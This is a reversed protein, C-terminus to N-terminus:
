PGLLRAIPPRMSNLDLSAARRQAEAEVERLVVAAQDGRALLSLRLADRLVEGADPLDPAGALAHVLQALQHSSGQAAYHAAARECIAEPSAGRPGLGAQGIAAVLRLNARRTNGGDLFYAQFLGDVGLDLEHQLWLASKTARRTAAQNGSEAVHRIKHWVRRALGPGPSRLVRFRPTRSIPTSASGADPYAPLTVNQLQIKSTKLEQPM